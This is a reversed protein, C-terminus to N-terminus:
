WSTKSNDFDKDDQPASQNKEYDPTSGDKKGGRNENMDAWDDSKKEKESM